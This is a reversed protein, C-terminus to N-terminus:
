GTTEFQVCETRVPFLITCILYTAKQFMSSSPSSPLIHASHFLKSSRGPCLLQSNAEPWRWHSRRIKSPSIDVERSQCFSLSLVPVLSSKFCIIESLQINGLTLGLCSAIYLLFERYCCLISHVTCLNRGECSHPLSSFPQRCSLCPHMHQEENGQFAWSHCTTQQICDKGQSCPRWFGTVSVKNVFM